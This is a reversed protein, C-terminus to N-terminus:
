VSSYEKVSIGM